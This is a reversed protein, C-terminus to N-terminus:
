GYREFNDRTTDTMWTLGTAKKDDDMANYYLFVSASSALLNMYSTLTHVSGEDNQENESLPELWLSTCLKQALDDNVDLEDDFGHVMGNDNIYQRRKEYVPNQEIIPLLKMVKLRLNLTQQKTVKTNKLLLDYLAGKIQSVTLRKKKVQRCLM